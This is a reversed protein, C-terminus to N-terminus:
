KRESALSFSDTALVIKPHFLTGAVRTAIAILEAQGLFVKVQRARSLEPLNVSRGSRIRLAAEEMDDPTRIHHGTLVSAEDLNPTAILALPLLDRRVKDVADAPCPANCHPSIFMTGLVKPHRAASM